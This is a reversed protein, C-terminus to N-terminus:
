RLSRGASGAGRSRRAPNVRNTPRSASISCIRRASARACSPRPWSTATTPLGAHPLGAEDVLEGVGVAGLVPEDQFGAGHGVALRGAVQRDDVEELGVELHVIAFGVALNALLHGALEERQIAGELRDQGGQQGQEVHGDLVGVPLREIGGLAPLAGEIGDLVEQEPLALPLREEHDELVQVPDIGLRLGQEVAQDLAQGCGPDEQQDVVPGLVLM